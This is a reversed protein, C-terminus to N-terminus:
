ADRSVKAATDSILSDLSDDSVIGHITMAPLAGAEVLAYEIRWGSAKLLLEATSAEPVWMSESQFLCLAGDPLIHWQTLSIEEARPEPSIPIVKPSVVPHAASYAIIVEFPSPVLLELGEPKARDFPWLPLFGRWGGHPAYCTGLELFTLGPAFEPVESKERAFRRPDWDTWGKPRLIPDTESGTM